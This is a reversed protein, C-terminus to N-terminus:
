KFVGAAHAYEVVGPVGRQTRLIRAQTLNVAHQQRVCMAVVEAVHFHFRQAFARAIRGGNHRCTRVADRSFDGCGLIRGHNCHDIEGHKEASFHFDDGALRNIQAGHRAARGRHRACRGAARVDMEAARMHQFGGTRLQAHLNGDHMGCVGVAQRQGGDAFGLAFHQGGIAQRERRPRGHAKDDLKGIAERNIQRAIGAEVGLHFGNHVFVM